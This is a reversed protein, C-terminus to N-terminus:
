QNIVLATNLFTHRQRISDRGLDDFVVNACSQADNDAIIQPEYKSNLGGDYAEMAIVSRFGAM